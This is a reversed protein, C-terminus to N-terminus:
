KCGRCNLSIFYLQFSFINLILVPVIVFKVTANGQVDNNVCDVLTLISLIEM